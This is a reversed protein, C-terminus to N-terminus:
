LAENNKAKQLYANIENNSKRYKLSDVSPRSQSRREFLPIHKDSYEWFNCLTNNPTNYYFSITLKCNDFGMSYHKSSTQFQFSDILEEYKKIVSIVHAYEKSDFIVGGKLLKKPLEMYIPKVSVNLKNFYKIINSSASKSVYIGAFFLQFQSRDINNNQFYTLINNISSKITKGSGILDDIFVIAKKNQFVTPSMPYESCIFQNNKIGRGMNVSNLYSRVEDGGSKLGKPSPITIFVVDNFSIGLAKLKVYIDDSLISIKHRYERRTIYTYNGLLNLFINIDEDSFTQLWNNVHTSFIDKGILYDCEKEQAYAENENSLYHEPNICNSQYFADIAEEINAFNKM